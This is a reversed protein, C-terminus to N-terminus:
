RRKRILRLKSQPRFAQLTALSRPRSPRTRLSATLIVLSLVLPLLLQLM